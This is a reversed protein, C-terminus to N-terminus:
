IFNKAIKTDSFLNILTSSSLMDKAFLLLFIIEDLYSSFIFKCFISFLFDIGMSATNTRALIKSADQPPGGVTCDFGVGVWVGVGIGDGVGLGM